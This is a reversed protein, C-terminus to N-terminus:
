LVRGIYDIILEALDIGTCELTTVFHPNSNIECIIPEDNKGFMVDVGAFDLGVAHCAEVALRKQAESADFKESKGGITLNSRFDGNISYRLMSSVAQNGVVNIRIDRGASSRVFEQLLFPKEALREAIELLQAEDKALYVQQGFSGSCEKVVVPYGLERGAFKFFATDERKTNSFTFPAPITRPQKIGSRELEIFTKAKDDCVEIALARNFLRLGKMELLRALYIDKDWFLVFDTNQPTIENKELLEFAQANTTLELRAGAKEAASSLGAYIGNFKDSVLYHNVILRGDM